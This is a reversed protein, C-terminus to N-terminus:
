GGAVCVGDACTGRTGGSLCDLDGPLPESVCTGSRDRYDYTCINGDDCSNATCGPTGAVCFASLPTDRLAETRAQTGENFAGVGGGIFLMGDVATAGSAVGSIATSGIILGLFDGRERDFFHVLPGPTGGTIALGPVGSTPGFCPRADAYQWAVAGTDVDFAHVLPRQPDLPNFGPATCVVIRGEGVSAAGIMGGAPGGPVVNTQWYPEILGTLQNVGDRDLVYYTGDKGGIGVVDRIAGGIEAEFLNPVAGFALDANDVERPRWVWVPDGHLSVAFIAEDYPPMPPPPPPTSPDDDTDCNSSGIYFVGRRLDVAPSSWVNGCATSSRDFDCGPRTELFGEPLGLEEATHFGDFRRIDDEPHPRCTEVTELDFWWVLRGDHADLAMIGGKGPASDNVDMGAIVLGNVVAPTSEIQNREQRPTCDTCGTGADFQWIEEGTNADLCYMTEGGPVYVRQRGGVWAITPTGAFPYFTGPQPKRLYSWVRSGNETRLAYVHRDWSSAIVVQTRGEGPIDIWTVVPQASIMGSTFYRWKLVLQGTTQRNIKRERPNFYTRRYSGGLTLWEGARSPVIGIGSPATLGRAMLEPAPAEGVSLDLKRLTGRGPIPQRTTADLGRDAYYLAGNADFALGVPDGGSGGPVLTRVSLGSEDYETIESRSSNAVGARAVFWHGSPGQAIATPACDEDCGFILGKEPHVAPCESANSPFPGDFRFVSGGPVAEVVYVADYADDVYRGLPGPHRLGADLLCGSQYEPPFFVWLQGDAGGPTIVASGFLRGSADVACGAPTGAPQGDGPAGLPVTALFTGDPSFISWGPVPANREDGVVYRGSGDRLACVQGIPMGRTPPVVITEAGSQLDLEGLQQGHASLVVETASASGCGELAKGVARVLEDISVVGNRDNDAADCMTLPFAGLAIQVARILEDITVAADGACDGVCGHSPRALAVAALFGALVIAARRRRRKGLRPSHRIAVISTVRM